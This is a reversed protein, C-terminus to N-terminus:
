NGTYRLDSPATVKSIVLEKNQVLSESEQAMQGSQATSQDRGYGLIKNHFLRSKVKNTAPPAKDIILLGRPPHDGVQGHLRNSSTGFTSLGCPLGRGNLLASSACNLEVM